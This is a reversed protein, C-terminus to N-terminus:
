PFTTVLGRMEISNVGPSDSQMNVSPLTRIFDSVGSLGKEDLKTPSVVSISMPVKQVSQEGQRTASVVVEQLENDGASAGADASWCLAPIGSSITTSAILTVARRFSM